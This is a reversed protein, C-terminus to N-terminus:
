ERILLQVNSKKGVFLMGVHLFPLFLSTRGSRNTIFFIRRYTTSLNSFEYSLTVIFFDFLFENEGYVMM